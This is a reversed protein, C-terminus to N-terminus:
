ALGLLKLAERLNKVEADPKKQGKELTEKNRNIWIVPVKMALCPVVDTHYSSSIHVWAKKGGIRRAFEKFHAPDPKYARVQQATVVLDFDLPIHRRTHGLLKDDINSILGTQFNKGLKNLAPTSESFPKWYPISDPLFGSRSSELRWGAQEAIEVATRRLVEAYLEYSGAEIKHQIEKFAPLVQEKTLTVGDKEAEANFANMVGTEWDIVTGYVDLTVWSVKKPIPM